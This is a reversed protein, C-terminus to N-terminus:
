VNFGVYVPVHSPDPRICQVASIHPPAKLMGLFILEDDSTFYVEYTMNESFSDHRLPRVLLVDSPTVPVSTQTHIIYKKKCM